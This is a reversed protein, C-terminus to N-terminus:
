QSAGSKNLAWDYSLHKIKYRGESLGVKQADSLKLAGSYLAIFSTLDNAGRWGKEFDKRYWKFINSLYIRQNDAYNRSSDSLFAITSEELQADLVEGRYAKDLLAPCGISACNVAFHIRPDNYRESGRIM